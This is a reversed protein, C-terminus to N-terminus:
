NRDAASLWSMFVTSVLLGSVVTRRGLWPGRNLKFSNSPVVVPKHVKNAITDADPTLQQCAITPNTTMPVPDASTLRSTSAQFTRVPTRREVRYSFVEQEEIDSM